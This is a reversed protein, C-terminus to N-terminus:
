IYFSLILVCFFSNLTTNLDKGCCIDTWAEVLLILVRENPCMGIIGIICMGIIGIGVSKEQRLAMAWPDSPHRRYTQNRHLSPNTQLFFFTLTSM